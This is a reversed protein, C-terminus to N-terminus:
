NKSAPVILCNLTKTFSFIPFTARFIIPFVLIERVTIVTLYIFYLLYHSMVILM